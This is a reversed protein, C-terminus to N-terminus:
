AVYEEPKLTQQNHNEITTAAQLLIEHLQGAKYGMLRIIIGKVPLQSVGFAVDQQPLLYSHLAEMISFIDVADNIYLLTAQHTYGELQGIAQLDMKAPQLLINEKIVLKGAMYVSTTNQYSTFRFVEGNLKRGCSIVEGWLLSSNAHLYISYSSAYIAGEHPVVPHPLFKLSGGAAINVQMKQKAGKKMTFLRQFSQTQLELECQENVDIVIDYDDGDLIGPSSCMMMLRLRQEKRDETIDALKYPQNCFSSQLITKGNRFRTAIHVKAILPM